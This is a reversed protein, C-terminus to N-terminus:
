FEMGGDDDNEDIVAVQQGRQQGFKQKPKANVETIGFRPGSDDLEMFSGTLGSTDAATLMQTNRIDNAINENVFEFNDFAENNKHVRLLASEVQLTEVAEEQLFEDDINAIDEASQVKPVYPPEM